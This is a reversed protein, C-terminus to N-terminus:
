TRLTCEYHDDFANGLNEIYYNKGNYQIIDEEEIQTSPDCFFMPNKIHVQMGNDIVWRGSLNQFSGTIDATSTYSNVIEGALGITSSRKFLTVTQDYFISVM